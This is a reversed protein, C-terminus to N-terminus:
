CRNQNGAAAWAGAGCQRRNVLHRGSGQSGSPCPVGPLPAPHRFSPVSCCSWPGRSLCGWALVLSPLPHDRTWDCGQTMGDSPCAGALRQCVGWSSRHGAGLGGMARQGPVWPLKLWSSRIEAGSVRSGGARPGGCGTIREPRPSLSRRRLEGSSAGTKEDSRPHVRRGQVGRGVQQVEQSGPRRPWLQDGQSSSSCHTGPAEESGPASGSRHGTEELIAGLLRPVEHLSMIPSPRAQSGGPFFAPLSVPGLPM